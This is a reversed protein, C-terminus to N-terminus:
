KNNNGNNTGYARILYKYIDKAKFFGFVALVIVAVLQIWQKTIIAFIIGLIIAIVYIFLAFFYGIGKFNEM